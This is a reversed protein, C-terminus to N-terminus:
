SANTAETSQQGALDATERLVESVYQALNAAVSAGLEDRRSAILTALNTIVERILEKLWKRSKKDSSKLMRRTSQAVSLLLETLLFLRHEGSMTALTGASDSAALAQALSLPGLPDNSLRYRVAAPVLVVREM